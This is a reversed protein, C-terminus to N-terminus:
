PYSVCTTPFTRTAGPWVIRVAGLGWYGNDYSGTKAGGGYSGGNGGYQHVVTCYYNTCSTHNQTVCCYTATGDTGGSGGGGNGVGSAGQGLLAVGGGGYGSGCAGGGTAGSYGGTGGGSRGNGGGDGVYAAGNGGGKVVATSVFYTNEGQGYFANVTYSNAPTVSYNNKYGLAGGYGAITGGGVAVVSVSTVGSPAVWSVLGTQNYYTYSGPPRTTFASDWSYAYMAAFQTYPVSAYGEQGVAMFKGKSNIAVGSVDFSLSNTGNMAVPTTWTTGNTSTAWVGEGRGNTGVAVFVGTTPNLAVGTMCAYATSSNMRAPASWTAGGDTSYSALPSNAYLLYPQYGVAVWYGTTTNVAVGLAYFINGSSMRAPTSWTIGDSSYAAAGYSSTDHGVAVFVGSSSVTVARANFAYGSSGNMRYPTNWTTGNSSYAAVGIQSTDEGVAAFLGSSNVAVGYMFAVVTSGQMLAPTTWTTGNTSYAAVPYSAGNYGVAVFLGSSNVSVANMYAITTSGNMRAPTTWTTGNSSYAAVPYSTYVEYGVAVFKGASNVAVAKIFVATSGGMLAAPYFDTFAIIPDSAAGGSWGFAKASAAGRTIIAPM